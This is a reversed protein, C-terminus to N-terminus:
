DDAEELLSGLRRRAQMLQVRVTPTAMGLLKGVEPTPLDVLYHLVIVARQRGPLQRIARMLDLAGDASTPEWPLDVPQESRGRSKLEGMAIKFSARWVWARPDRVGNGRALLQAFGEAVADSAVEPDSSFVLLARWLAAAQEQYIAAIARVSDGQV